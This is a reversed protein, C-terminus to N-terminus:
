GEGQWAVVQSDAKKLVDAPDGEFAARREGFWLLLRM